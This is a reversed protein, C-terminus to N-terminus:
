LSAIYEDIIAPYGERYSPMRLRYGTAKLGANSCRKNGGRGAGGPGEGPPDVGLREAVFRYVEALPAPADDVGVLVEGPLAEARLLNRLLGACDDRHIRNGYRVRDPDVKAEGSHVRRILWTRGPGYIGSLRLSLSEFPAAAIRAEGELLIHGTFSSPETPSAEDVWDGDDQGYVATSSIFVGRRVGRGELATLLNALGDVYAGRYAEETRGGASVGYVLQDIREPLAGLTSADTLDAAVPRVGEPLKSPDRRLGYVEVGDQVLEEALASGVYGCGAILVRSRPASASM